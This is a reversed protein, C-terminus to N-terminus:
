RDPVLWSKRRTFGLLTVASKCKHQHGREHKRRGEVGETDSACLAETGKRGSDGPGLLVITRPVQM